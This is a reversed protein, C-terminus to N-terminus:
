VTLYTATANVLEFSFPLTSGAALTEASINFKNNVEDSDISVDKATLKPAKFTLSYYNLGSILSGLWSLQLSFIDQKRLRNFPNFDQAIAKAVLAMFTLETTPTGVPLSGRVAGSEADGDVQFKGCGQYGQNSQLNNNHSLNFGRFDCLINQVTGGYSVNPYLAFAAATTKLFHETKADDLVVHSPSKIFNVGSGTAATVPSGLQKGSGRWSLNTMLFAGNTADSPNSITGSEAKMGPYMVDHLIDADLAPEGLKEVYTYSPLDVTGLPNLPTFIHKYAGGGLSSVSYGGLLALLRRGIAEYTAREEMSQEVDHVSVSSKTPYGTGTSLGANTVPTTTFRAKDFGVKAIQEYNKPSNTPALPVGYATEPVMSLAFLSGEERSAM